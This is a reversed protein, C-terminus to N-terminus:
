IDDEWNPTEGNLIRRVASERALFGKNEMHKINLAIKLQSNKIVIGKLAEAIKECLKYNGVKEVLDNEVLTKYIIEKAQKENLEIEM